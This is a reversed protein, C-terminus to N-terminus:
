RESVTSGAAEFFERSKQRTLAVIVLASLVMRGVFLAPAAVADLLAIAPAITASLAPPLSERQSIRAHEWFLAWEAHWVNKTLVFVLVAVIVQATLLQVLPGRANASGALARSALALIAAGLVFTAAALPVTRGHAADAAETYHQYLADAHARDADNQVAWSRARQNALEADGRYFSLKACGDAWGMAGFVLTMVLALLLYRPTKRPAGPEAPEAPESPPSSSGEPDGDSVM